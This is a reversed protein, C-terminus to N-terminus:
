RATDAISIAASKGSPQPNSSPNTSTSTRAVWQSVRVVSPAQSPKSAATFTKAPSSEPTSNDGLRTGYPDTQELAAGKRNLSDSNIAGNADGTQETRPKTAQTSTDIPTPALGIGGGAPNSSISTGTPVYSIRTGVQMRKTVQVAQMVTEEAQQYTTRTVAVKRTSQTPQMRTVNYTVQKTTPVAVKRTCPITCTMTQPQQYQRVQQYPPTFASRMNYSARNMAGMVNQRNDYQYASVRTNPVNQTVWGGGVQKKVQKYETVTQYDVSAVQATRQETVPAMVTYPQDIYDTTTVPKSVMQKVPRYETVAVDQMLPQVMQQMQKVAVVQQTVAPAVNQVSVVQMQQVPQDITCAIPAGCQVADSYGYSAVSMPAASYSASSFASQRMIPPPGMLTPSSCGCSGSGSGPFWQASANGCLSLVTLAGWLSTLGFMSRPM